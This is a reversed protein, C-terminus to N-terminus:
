PQAAPRGSRRAASRPSTKKRSQTADDATDVHIGSLLPLPELMKAWIVAPFGFRAEIVRGRSARTDADPWSVDKGALVITNGERNPPLSWVNGVGFAAEIRRASVEFSADRGFLNVTMLGGSSLVAHCDRYFAEDDLAPSAADHDYLDVTLVQVSERRHPDAVFLAADMQLVALTDDDGPLAFWLRCAEIVTPNLEVATTQMGLVLNCFKTVAAAGLGLQVAHGAAPMGLRNGADVSGLESGPVLLMWVMMRRVYELEIALPRSRRMAGQIWPTGLHLYRVGRSESLTAPEMSPAAIRNGASRATIKRNAMFDKLDKLKIWGRSACSM